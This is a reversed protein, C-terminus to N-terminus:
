TSGDRGRGCRARDPKRPDDSRGSILGSIVNAVFPVGILILIILCWPFGVCWLAAVLVFLVAVLVFLAAVLVFITLFACALEKFPNKPGVHKGAYKVGFLWGIRVALWAVCAWFWTHNISWIMERFLWDADDRCIKRNAVVGKKRYPLCGNEYAYDHVISPILLIGNPRLIGFTLFSVLWPLPVSAGDVITGKPIVIEGDLPSNDICSVKKTGCLAVCWDDALKWLRRKTAHLPCWEGTILKLPQLLPWRCFKVCGGNPLEYCCKSKSPKCGDKSESPECGEKPESRENDCM